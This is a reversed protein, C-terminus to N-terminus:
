RDKKNMEIFYNTVGEYVAEAVKNHYKKNQAYAADTDNNIYGLELLIAPKDNERLVQYDQTGFGRNELPLIDAIQDNVAQALPRGNKNRYFTTTGSGENPNGTSDYHFSLFIDANSKNSIDAIKSLSVFDDKSRTMLVSYGKEELENKVTKATALTLTKELVKGDNTEAGPDNGGHGPDLMIVHEPLPERPRKENKSLKNNTIEWSRMYGKQGSETSVQYWYDGEEKLTIKEAYGLRTSISSTESKKSYLPANDLAVQLKDDIEFKPQQNKRIDLSDSPVWGYKDDVYIRCWGNLELTVFVKQKKRLTDITKSSKQNNKKLETNRQTIVAPLYTYPGSQGDFILWEAVWGDVKESTQIKYWGGKKEKITVRDERHVQTLVPSTADPKERVNLAITQVDVIQNTGHMFYFGAIVLGVIVLNFILLKMTNKSTDSNRM